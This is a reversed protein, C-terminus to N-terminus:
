AEEEKQALKVLLEAILNKM